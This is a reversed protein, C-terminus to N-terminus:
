RVAQVTLEYLALALLRPDGDSGRGAPQDTLLALVSKGPPLVVGTYEQKQISGNLVRSGGIRVDGLEVQLRSRGLSRVRLLLNVTQPGPGPNFVTIFGTGTSWRWRNLGLGEPAHWGEGFNLDVRGAAAVRVVHFQANLNYYDSEAMPLSRLLSSSLDWEGKLATNRRGEYTHTAFYQPKHLLFANAWLRTWFKDIRMNISSVRPTNELRRLDLLGREVRLPPSAMQQAFLLTTRGNFALVVLVLTVALARGWRSRATGVVALGGALGALLGPYFVSFLKFADYSANARTQAEWVLLGWGGLVPLVLALAGLAAARQRRWLLAVGALWLGLVVGSLILRAPRPWAYLGTDRLMGLWGEPSLLPVPWGFDYQQFLGFREIMGDFRGWFLLACATLMALLMVGVRLPGRWDRRLWMEALLWAAAPALAVTLIFNYSGALIWFAALALPAWAWVSGRLRWSRGAGVAALTLLAIGHAAYLQGLAGHHVAYAGLPSFLYIAVPVLGAAGRVGVAVRALLLVLTANLLLVVVASVSVLQYPELEFVAGHHAILASPTFHNMRLCLDFFHDASGVKTVETLGLFGTRDDKSFEQFVRASAAYDAHDCSGLSSSTLTWSARQAMPWLLAWGALAALLVVGRAGWGALLWGRTVPWGHRVVAAALLGLPLLESWLAYTNTGALPTYAGVWVVASQLAVGLGPALAWWWRRWTRPLVLWSLGAGWFVTHLVLAAAIIYYLMTPAVM